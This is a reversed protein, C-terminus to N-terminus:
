GGAPKFDPCPSLRAIGGDLVLIQLLAAQFADEAKVFYEVPANCLVVLLKAGVKPQDVKVMMAFQSASERCLQTQLSSVGRAQKLLLM